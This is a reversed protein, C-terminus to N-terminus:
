LIFPLEKHTSSSLIIDFHCFTIPLQIM